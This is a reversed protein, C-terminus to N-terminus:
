SYLVQVCVVTFDVSSVFTACGVTEQPNGQLYLNGGVGLFRGGSLLVAAFGSVGTSVPALTDWRDASAYYVYTASSAVFTQSCTLM